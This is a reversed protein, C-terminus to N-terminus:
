TMWNYSRFHKNLYKLTQKQILSHQQKNVQLCSSNCALIFIFTDSLQFVIVIETCSLKGDKEEKDHPLTTATLLINDSEMVEQGLVDIKGMDVSYMALMCVYHRSHKSWEEHMIIGKKGIIKVTIKDEV